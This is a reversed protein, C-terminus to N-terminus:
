RALRGAEVDASVFEDVLTVFRSHHEMHGMHKAPQLTAMTGKPISQAMFASAEPKTTGDQDGAVVLTPIPISRLTATADYRFMALMGRALVGPWAKPLFRTAFDLQGRTERGSFSDRETSRHLSGNLYSMWNMVWVLPALWIMLYCLPELVPKQIATYLGSMSTTKVPNTHTTHVLVLRSVRRGLAEPFLRCYTLIIMGGISHGLLTVPGGGLQAVVTNLDHAMKELSWNNDDPRTSKGLGPLDWLILRYRDALQTKAYYWETSNVGWGHTMVITPGDAPGYVEAQLVTGDPRPIRHVLGDRTEKPDDDESRPDNNGRRRLLPYGLSGGGLSCLTLALGGLLEATGRNFGFHWPVVRLVRADEDRPAVRGADRTARRDPGDSQVGTRPEEVYLRRHNYWDRLLYIGLGLLVVALLGRLWIGLIQFPM